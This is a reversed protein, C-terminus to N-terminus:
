KGAMEVPQEVNPFQVIFTTGRSIESEVWIFGRSQKVIGYVTALGLGASMDSKKTSFFPEFLHELVEANMGEGNDAISIQVYSGTPQAKHHVTSEDLIINTTKIEIIGGDPMAEVANRILNLLVNEMQKCDIFCVGLQPNLDIKTEINEGILAPLKKSFETVVRNLNVLDSNMPQKRGFALLQRVIEVANNVVAKIENVRHHHPSDAPLQLGLMDTQLMIVALFNNFDHAVGGALKGLADYKHNQWVREDSLLLAQETRKRETVDYILIQRCNEPLSCSIVEGWVITGDPRVFELEYREEYNGSWDNAINEAYQATHFVDFIKEGVVTEDHYGFFERAPCNMSLCRNEADAIFIPIPILEIFRSLSEQDTLM